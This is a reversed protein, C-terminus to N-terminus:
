CVALRQFSDIVHIITRRDLELDGNVILTSTGDKVKLSCTGFCITLIYEPSLKQSLDIISVQAVPLQFAGIAIQLEAM